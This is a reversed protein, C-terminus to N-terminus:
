GAVWSAGVCMRATSFPCIGLNVSSLINRTSCLARSKTLALQTLHQVGATLLKPDNKRSRRSREVHFVGSGEVGSKSKTGINWTSCGRRILEIWDLWLPNLHEM